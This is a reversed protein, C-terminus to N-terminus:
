LKDLITFIPKVKFKKNPEKFPKYITGDEGTNM